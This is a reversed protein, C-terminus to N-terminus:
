GSSTVTTAIKPSSGTVALCTVRVPVAPRPRSPPELKGAEIQFAYVSATRLPLAPLNWSLSASIPATCVGDRLAEGVGDVDGDELEGVALVLGVCDGVVDGVGVAVLVAGVDGVGVVVVDGDGM